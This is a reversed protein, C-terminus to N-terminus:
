RVKVFSVEHCNTRHEQKCKSVFKCWLNQHTWFIRYGLDYLDELIELGQLYTDRGQEPASLELHLEMVLNDIGTLDGTSIIDPLVQWEWSEIDM